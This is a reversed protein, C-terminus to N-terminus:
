RAVVSGLSMANAVIQQELKQIIAARMVGPLIGSSLPPTSIVCDKVIFINTTAGELVHQNPNVFVADDFGRRCGHAKAHLNRLYNLSKLGSFSDVRLDCPFTKLRFGKGYHALTYTAPRALILETWGTVERFVVIKLSGNVLSNAAIVQVCRRHLEDWGLSGPSEDLSRLSAALRAHHSDFLLPRSDQVRVTEFLGEGAMFGSGLPSIRLEDTAIVAAECMAYKLYSVNTNSMNNRRGLLAARMARGKALTEQYESEPDSDAVIGGGVHYSARGARCLITRIAVNLDCTGDFGLYGLSGTYVHRRCPELEDILQMARIKPAGTISGGPLMSRLCDFVDADDRLQGSITSVLHFVTPHAEIRSREEVQISGYSCVRGLDNRELDVIMLLEAHDKESASLEAALRQDEEVTRGRPRTGKIPRTLARGQRDLRLFLEPSSSLIQFEGANLYAGFPRRASNDCGDEYIAYPEDSRKCSRGFRQSLNVQFVDGAAIYEKVQAM